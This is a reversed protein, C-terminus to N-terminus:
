IYIDSVYVCVCVRARARTYTHTHTYVNRINIYTDRAFYIFFKRKQTEKSRSTEAFFGKHHSHTRNYDEFGPLKM